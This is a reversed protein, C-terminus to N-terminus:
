ALKRLSESASILFVCHNGSHPSLRIAFMTSPRGSQHIERWRVQPTGMAKNTSLSVPANCGFVWASISCAAANTSFDPICAHYSKSGSVSNPSSSALCYM